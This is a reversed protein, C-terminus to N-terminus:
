KGPANTANPTRKGISKAIGRSLGAGELVQTVVMNKRFTFSEDVDNYEVITKEGGEGETVSAKM